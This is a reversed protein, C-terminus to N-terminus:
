TLILTELARHAGQSHAQTTQNLVSAAVEQVLLLLRQTSKPNGNPATHLMFPSISGVGALASLATLVHRLLYRYM